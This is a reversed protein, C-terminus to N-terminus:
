NSEAERQADRGLADLAPRDLLRGHLIVGEIRHLVATNRTADAGLLV